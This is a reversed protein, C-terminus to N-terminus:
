CSCVAVERDSAFSMWSQAGQSFGLYQLQVLLVSHNVADFAKCFDFLTLVTCQQKDIALRIKDTIRLLLTETSHLSCLPSPLSSFLLFQSLKWLLLWLKWFHFFNYLSNYKKIHVCFVKFNLFYYLFYFQLFRPVKGQYESITLFLPQDEVRGAQGYGREKRQTLLTRSFVTKDIMIKYNIEKLLLMLTTLGKLM